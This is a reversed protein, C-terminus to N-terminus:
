KVKLKTDGKRLEQIIQIRQLWFNFKKGFTLTTDSRMPRTIKKNQLFFTLLRMGSKLFQTLFNVHYAYKERM